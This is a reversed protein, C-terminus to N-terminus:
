HEVFNVHKQSTNWLFYENQLIESRMLQDATILMIEDM